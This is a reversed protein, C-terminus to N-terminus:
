PVRGARDPPFYRYVVRGRIAGRGVPGFVRSDTSASENDGLVELSGASVRRVRKVLLRAGDRPDEVAVLVGPRVPLGEVVLLRDGPRLSPAM